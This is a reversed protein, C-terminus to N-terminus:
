DRVVSNPTLGKVAFRYRNTSADNAYCDGNCLNRSRTLIILTIAQKCCSDDVKLNSSSFRNAAVCSLHRIPFVGCSVNVQVNLRPVSAIANSFLTLKFVNTPADCVNQPMKELLFWIPTCIAPKVVDDWSRQDNLASLHELEVTECHPTQDALRPLFPHFWNFNCDSQRARASPHWVEV